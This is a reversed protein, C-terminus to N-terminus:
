IQHHCELEGPFRRRLAGPIAGNMSGRRLSRKLCDPYFRGTQSWEFDFVQELKDNASNNNSMNYIFVVNVNTFRVELAVILSSLFFFLRCAAWPYSSTFAAITPSSWFLSPSWSSGSTQNMCTSAANKTPCTLFSFSCYICTSAFRDASAM